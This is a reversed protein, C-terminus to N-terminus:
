NPCTEEVGVLECEPCINEADVTWGSAQAESAATEASEHWEDGCIRGCSHCKVAFLTAGGARRAVFMTDANM